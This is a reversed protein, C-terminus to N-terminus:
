FLMGVCATVAKDAVGVVGDIALVVAVHEPGLVKLLHSGDAAVPHLMQKSPPM